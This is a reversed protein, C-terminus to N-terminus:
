YDARHTTRYCPSTDHQGRERACSVLHAAESRYSSPISSVRARTECGTLSGQKGALQHPCPVNTRRGRRDDVAIFRTHDANATWSTGPGGADAPLRFLRSPNASVVRCQRQDTVSAAMLTRDLGLYIIEHGDARWHPDVVAPRVVGGAAAREAAPAFWGGHLRALVVELRGTRDTVLALWQGDPSPSLKGQTDRSSPDRRVHASANDLTATSSRENGSDTARTVVLLSQSRCSRSDKARTLAGSIAIRPPRSGDLTAM